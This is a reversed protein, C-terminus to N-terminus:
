GIQITIKFVAPASPAEPRTVSVNQSWPSTQNLTDTVRVKCSQVTGKQFFTDLPIKLSLDQPTTLYQQTGQSGQCLIELEKLEDQTLAVGNTRTTPLTWEVTIVPSAVPATTSTDAKAAKIAGMVLALLAVISIEIVNLLKLKRKRSELRNM